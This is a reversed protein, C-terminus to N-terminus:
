VTRAIKYANLYWERMGQIDQSNHDYTSHLNCFFTPAFNLRINENIWIKNRETFNVNNLQYYQFFDGHSEEVDIESSHDSNRQFSENRPLTPFTRLPSPPSLLEHDWHCSRAPSKKCPRHWRTMSNALMKSTATLMRKSSELPTKRLRGLM